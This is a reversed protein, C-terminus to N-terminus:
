PNCILCVQPVFAALFDRQLHHMLQLAVQQEAGELEDMGTTLAASLAQKSGVPHLNVAVRIPAEDQMCSQM